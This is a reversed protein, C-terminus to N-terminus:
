IIILYFLNIGFQQKLYVQYPIKNIGVCMIRKVLHIITVMCFQSWKNKFLLRKTWFEGGERLEWENELNKKKTKSLIWEWLQIFLILYLVFKTVYTKYSNLTM